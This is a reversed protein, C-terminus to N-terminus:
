RIISIENFSKWKVVQDNNGTNEHQKLTTTICFIAYNCQLYFPPPLPPTKFPIDKNASSYRRVRRFIEECVVKQIQLHNKTLRFRMNQDHTFQHGFFM